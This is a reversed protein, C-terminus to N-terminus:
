RVTIFAPFDTVPKILCSLLSISNTALPTALYVTVFKSYHSTPLVLLM